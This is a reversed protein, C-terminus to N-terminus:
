VSRWLEALQFYAEKPSFSGAQVLGFWAQNAYKDPFNDNPYGCNTHQSYNYSPCGPHRSDAIGLSGKWYEDVYEVVSGGFTYTNNEEIDGWLDAICEAQMHPNSRLSADDYEDIGFESIFLPKLSVSSFQLFLPGFDCGRYVNISWFDINPSVTEYRLIANVSDVDNLATSVPHPNSSELSKVLAAATNLWSFLADKEYGYNWDANLDSGILYFLVAPHNKINTIFTTIDTLAKSRVNPDALNPYLAPSLFFGPIVYIPHDGGNLAADLFASHDANIDWGWLRVANAGLSRLIPLDRRYINGYTSTFYDGYPPTQTPDVGVPTPAYGVSQVVFLNGDVFLQRGHITVVIASTIHLLLVFLVFVLSSFRHM